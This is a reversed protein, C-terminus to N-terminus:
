AYYLVIGGNWSCSCHQEKAKKVVDRSSQSDLAKWSFIRCHLEVRSSSFKLPVHYWAFNSWHFLIDIVLACFVISTDHCNGFINQPSGFIYSSLYSPELFTLTGFAPLSLNFGCRGVCPRIPVSAEASAIACTTECARDIHVERYKFPLEKVRWGICKCRALVRSFEAVLNPDGRQFFWIKWMDGKEEPSGVLVFINAQQYLPPSLKVKFLHRWM